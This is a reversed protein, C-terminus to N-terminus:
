SFTLDTSLAIYEQVPWGVWNIVAKNGQECIRVVEDFFLDQM